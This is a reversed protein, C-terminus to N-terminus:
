DGQRAELVALTRNAHKVEKNDHLKDFRECDIIANKLMTHQRSRVSERLKELAMQQSLELCVCHCLAAVQIRTLRASFSVSVACLSCQATPPPVSGIDVHQTTIHSM